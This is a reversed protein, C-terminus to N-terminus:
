SVPLSKETLDLTRGYRMEGYVWDAVIDVVQSRHPEVLQIGTINAGSFKFPEMNVMHVNPTTILYSYALSLLGVQRAQELVLAVNEPSCDLVINREIMKKMEKLM